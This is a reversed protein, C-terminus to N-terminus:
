QSGMESLSSALTRIHVPGWAVQIGVVMVESRMDGARGQSAGNWGCKRYVGAMSEGEHSQFKSNGRHAISKGVGGWTRM